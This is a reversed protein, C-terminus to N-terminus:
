SDCLGDPAVDYSLSGFGPPEELYPGDFLVRPAGITLRPETEVDVAILQGDDRYFLQRGERSWIPETGGQAHPREAVGM